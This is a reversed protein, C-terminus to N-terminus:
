LRPRILWLQILRRLVWAVALILAVAIVVIMINPGVDFSAEAVAPTLDEIQVEQIAALADHGIYYETGNVIAGQPNQVGHIVNVSQEHGNIYLHMGTSTRTFEVSVWENLPVPQTTVIENYGESDTWIYGSLAGFVQNGEDQLYSGRISLGNIRQTNQWTCAQDPHTCKVIINNYAAAGKVGSVNIWANIRVQEQIDLNPSIPMFVPQPTPPFGIVFKIPVYVGNSGSFLMAKGFKGGTLIPQEPGGVLIGHNVGTADPTIVSSGSSDIESLSWAGVVKGGSQARVDLTLAPFLLSIVIYSSALFKFIDKTKKAPM